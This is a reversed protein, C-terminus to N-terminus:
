IAKGPDLIGLPDLAAKISRPVAMSVPGLALELRRRKLTGVGHEGTLTGGLDLAARCVEAATAWVRDPIDVSGRPAVFTPHLNGDPAHAVTAIFVEHERGAAEIAEIMEPLRSRPVGVDEVLCKGLRETAPHALRRIGLM